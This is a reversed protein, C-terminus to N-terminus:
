MSLNLKWKKPIFRVKDPFEEITKRNQLKRSIHTLWGCVQIATPRTSPNSNICISIVKDIYDPVNTGEFIEQILKGLMFVDDERKYIQATTNEKSIASRIPQPSGEYASLDLDSVVVQKVIGDGTKVLVNSVKLDAHVFGLYHLERLCSAVALCLEVRNHESLKDNHSKLYSELDESMLEFAIKKDDV